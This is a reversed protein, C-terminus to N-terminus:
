RPGVWSRWLISLDPRCVAVTVWTALRADWVEMSVLGEEMLRARRGQHSLALIPGPLPPTANCQHNVEDM